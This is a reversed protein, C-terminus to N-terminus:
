QKIFIAEYPLPQPRQDPPSSYFWCDTDLWNESPMYKWQLKTKTSDTFNVLVDGWRGCMEKDSYIMYYKDDQKRFFTGLLVANEDSSTTNDFLVIPQLQNPSNTVVKYKAILIDRYESVSSIYKNTLKKVYIYTIKNNWECKWTGVYYQLENNTDKLYSNEPIEYYTRLPYIQAKCSITVILLIIIFLIKKM